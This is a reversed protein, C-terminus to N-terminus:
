LRQICIKDNKEELFRAYRINSKHKLIKLQFYYRKIEKEGQQKCVSYLKMNHILKCEAVNQFEIM